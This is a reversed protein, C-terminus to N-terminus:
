FKANYVGKRRNIYFMETAIKQHEHFPIVLVAAGEATKSKIMYIGNNFNVREGTNYVYYGVAYLADKWDNTEKMNLLCKMYNDLDSVKERIVFLETIRSCFQIGSWEKKIIANGKGNVPGCWKSIIMFFFEETEKDLSTFWPDKGGYCEVMYTKSHDCNTFFAFSCKNDIKRNDIIVDIGKLQTPKDEIMIYRDHFYPEYYFQKMFYNELDNARRIDEKWQTQFSECQM